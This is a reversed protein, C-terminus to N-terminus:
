QIIDVPKKSELNMQEQNYLNTLLSGKAQTKERELSGKVGGLQTVGPVLSKSADSGLTTEAQRGYDTLSKNYRLEADSVAVRKGRQIEGEGFSSFTPMSVNQTGKTAYAGENGLKKVAEGSFTLGRRALDERTDDTLQEYQYDREIDAAQKNAQLFAVERELSDKFINAQETFYPDIESKTMEDFTSLINPINVEQDPTWNEIAKKFLLYTGQDISGDALYGDLVGIANALAQKDEATAQSQGQSSQQNNQSSQQQQGSQQQQNSQQQGGGQLINWAENKNQNSNWWSYSQLNTIGNQEVFNALAQPSNLTQQLIDYAQQRVNQPQSNWWTLSNLNTTSNDLLAKRAMSQASMTGTSQSSTAAPQSSQRPQQSQPQQQPQSTQKNQGQVIDWAANKHPSSSWWSYKQLNTLNNQKVFNALASPSSTLNQLLSYAQQRVNQPQSNWWSLSTLNTTSNELMARKAMEYATM